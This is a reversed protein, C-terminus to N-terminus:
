AIQAKERDRVISSDRADDFRSPSRADTSSEKSSSSSDNPVPKSNVEPLYASSRDGNWVNAIEKRENGFGGEYQACQFSNCARCLPVHNDPNWLLSEDNKHAIKHGTITADILRGPHRKFPDACFPHKRLFCLSYRDWKASYGQGRAGIRKQQHEACYTGIVVLARCRPAACPRSPKRM